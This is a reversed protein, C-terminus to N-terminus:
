RVRVWDNRVRVSQSLTMSTFTDNALRGALTIFIERTEVTIEDSGATPVNIYCNAEDAEDTSGDGDDNVGDPESTNLCSTNALNFTLATVAILNSDTLDNWTNNTSSCTDPDAADGTTRMQVKSGSLRFGLLEESDVVGDKDADYSYVICSGSGTATQQTNSTMNNFVEIATMDVVNFDNDGPSSLIDTSATYGARRLDSVMLEMVTTLEQNLKSSALTNTAGKYTALYSLLISSIVAMGLVVTIMLETLTFGRQKHSHNNLM